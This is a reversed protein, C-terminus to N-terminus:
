SLMDRNLSLEFETTAIGVQKKTGCVFIKNNGEIAYLLYVTAM